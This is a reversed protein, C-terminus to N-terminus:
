SKRAGRDEAEGVGAGDELWARNLLVRFQEINFSNNLEITQTSVTRYGIPLRGHSAMMLPRAIDCSELYPQSQSVFM